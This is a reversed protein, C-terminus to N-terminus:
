DAKKESFKDLYKLATEHSLQFNKELTETIREQPFNEELLVEILARIGALKGDEFGEERAEERLYRMVKEEDYEYISM